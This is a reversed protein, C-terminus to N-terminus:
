LAEVQNFAMEVPTGDVVVKLREKETDIESVVGEYNEFVGSSIRVTDGVAVHLAAKEKAAGEERLALAKRLRELEELLPDGPADGGAAVPPATEVPPSVSVSPAGEPVKAPFANEFRVLAAPSASMSGPREQLILDGRPTAALGELIGFSRGLPVVQLFVGDPGYMWLAEEADDFAYIRGEADGALFTPRFYVGEDIDEGGAGTGYISWEALREGSPAHVAIREARVDGEPAYALAIKGEPLLTM